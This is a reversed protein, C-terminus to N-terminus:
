VVSQLLVGLREGKSLSPRTLYTNGDIKRIKRILVRASRIIARLELRLRGSVLEPLGAGRDLLTEVRDLEFLSLLNLRQLLAPTEGAAKVQELDFMQWDDKPYYFRGNGLDEKIDQIFNLLQLATCIEDSLRILKKDHYGFLALVLEGVPDASRSTYWRLDEFTEFQVNGRADFEFAELLRELPEGPLNCETITNRLAIFIPNSAKNGTLVEQLQFRWDELLEVGGKSPSALVGGGKSPPPQPTTADAFDDATRMFAYLAFFHKRMKKPVLLSGVPFNEYHTSIRKCHEYAEELAASQM